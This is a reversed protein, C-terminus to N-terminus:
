KRGTKVGNMEIDGCKTFGLKSLWHSIRDRISTDDDHYALQYIITQLKCTWMSGYQYAPKTSDSWTYGGRVLYEPCIIHLTKDVLASGVGRSCYGEDVYVELLGTFRWMSMPSSYRDVCAFGIIKEEFVKNRRGSTIGGRKVAVICPLGANEVAEIREQLVSFEVDAPEPRSLGDSRHWNYIQLLRFIDSHEVPRIWIDLPQESKLKAYGHQPNNIEEMIKRDLEMANGIGLARSVDQTKPDRLDDHVSSYVGKLKSSESSDQPCLRSSLQAQDMSSSKLKAEHIETHKLERAFMGGKSKPKYARRDRAEKIKRRLEMAGNSGKDRKANGSESDFPDIRAEPVTFPHIAEFHDSIFSKWWPLYNISDGEWLEPGTAALNQWFEELNPSDLTIPMWERPAIDGLPPMFTGQRPSEGLPPFNVNGLYEGLNGYIDIYPGGDSYTAHVEERWVRIREELNSNKFTKRGEWEVPPPAWNGDWDCLTNFEKAQAEAETEWQAMDELDPTRARLDKKKPWRYGVKKTSPLRHDHQTNDRQSM